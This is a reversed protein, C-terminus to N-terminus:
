SKRCILDPDSYPAAIEIKPAQRYSVAAFGWRRSYANCLSVWMTGTCTPSGSFICADSRNSDPGPM